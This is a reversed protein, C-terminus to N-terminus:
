DVIWFHTSEHMGSFLMHCNSEDFAVRGAMSTANPCYTLSPYTDYSPVTNGNDDWKAPRFARVRFEDNLGDGTFDALVYQD